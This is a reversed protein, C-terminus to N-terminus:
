IPQSDPCKEIEQDMLAPGVPHKKLEAEVRDWLNFQATPHYLKAVWAQISQKTVWTTGGRPICELNKGCQNYVTKETVQLIRAAVPVRVAPIRNAFELLMLTAEWSDGAPSPKRSEGSIRAMRLPIDPVKRTTDAIALPDSLLHLLPESWFGEDYISLYLDPDKKELEEYLDELWGYKLRSLRRKFQAALFSTLTPTPRPIVTESFAHYLVLPFWYHAHDIFPDYDEATIVEPSPLNDGLFVIRHTCNIEDFWYWIEIIDPLNLHFLPKLFHEQPDLSLLMAAMYKAIAEVNADPSPQDEPRVLSLRAPKGM